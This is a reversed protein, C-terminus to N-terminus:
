LLVIGAKRTGFWPIARWSGNLLWNIETIPRGGMAYIDSVNLMVASWGAFWPEAELFQPLIGEAALLLYGDAEPIAASPLYVQRM